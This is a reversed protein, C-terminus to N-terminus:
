AMKCLGYITFAQRLVWTTVQQITRTREAMPIFEEPPIYGHKPHIWRVLAEVGYLAHTKVAVKAQYHLVLENRNVAHRLESMLTLRQPSHKDFGPDYVAYGEKKNRAMYLAIGARQVLTDVDEGHEPFNVIGACTHIAVQLREVVFAPQMSQQISNAVQIVDEQSDNILLSFTSGELRAVNDYNKLVGQLRSSIQQLVLDSNNRGMADYIEKYNEIEFLILSLTNGQSNASLIALGVRDYFLSRSPLDTLADHTSSYVAQKELSAAQSRLETTQELVMASAHYAIISSSYQGWVMFVFPLVDLVWLGFNSQQAQMIGSISISGTNYVCVVLTAIIISAIAIATGLYATKSAQGKLATVNFLLDTNGSSQAM